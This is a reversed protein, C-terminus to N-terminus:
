FDAAKEVISLLLIILHKWEEKFLYTLPVQFVEYFYSFHSCWIKEMWISFEDRYRYARLCVWMFVKEWIKHSRYIFPYDSHDYGCDFDWVGNLSWDFDMNHLGMM